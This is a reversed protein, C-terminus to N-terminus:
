CRDIIFIYNDGEGSNEFDFGNQAFSTVSDAPPPGIVIVDDPDAPDDGDEGEKNSESKTGGTKGLDVYDGDTGSEDRSLFLILLLLIILIIAIRFAPRKTIDNSHEM